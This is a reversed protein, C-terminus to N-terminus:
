ELPAGLPTGWSPGHDIALQVTVPEVHWDEYDSDSPWARFLKKCHPCRYLGAVMFGCQWCCDQNPCLQGEWENM